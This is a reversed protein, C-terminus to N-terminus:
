RRCKLSVTKSRKRYKLLSDLISKLSMESNHNELEYCLEEINDNFIFIHGDGTFNYYKSSSINNDIWKEYIHELEKVICSWSGIHPFEHKYSTSDKIDTTIILANELM